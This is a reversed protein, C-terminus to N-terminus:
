NDIRILEFLIGRRLEIAELWDAFTLGFASLAGLPNLSTITALRDNLDRPAPRPRM